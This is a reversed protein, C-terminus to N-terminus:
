QLREMWVKGGKLQALQIKAFEVEDTMGWKMAFLAHYYWYVPYLNNLALARSILQTGKEYEGTHYYIAALSEIASTNLPNKGTITELKHTAQLTDSEKLLLGSEIWMRREAEFLTDRVQGLYSRAKQPQNFALYVESLALHLAADDPKHRLGFGTTAIALSDKYKAYIKGMEIYPPMFSSDQGIVKRFSELAWFYGGVSDAYIGARMLDTQTLLGLDWETQASSEQGYALLLLALEKACLNSLVNEEYKLNSLQRFAAQGEGTIALCQAQHFKGLPFGNNGANEFYLSAPEPLNADMYIVGLLYYAMASLTSDTQALYQLKGISQEISDQRYKLYSELLQLEKLEVKQLAKTAHIAAQVYAERDLAYLAENVLDLSSQPPLEADLDIKEGTYAQFYIANARVSGADGAQLGKMLAKKASVLSDMQLYTLALNGYVASPANYSLAKNLTSLVTDPKKELSSYIYALQNYLRAELPNHRIGEKLLAIVASSDSLFANEAIKLRAPFFEILQTSRLFEDKAQEDKEPLTLYLMALNYHAKTNGPIWISASEYATLATTTDNNMLALDAQSVLRNYAIYKFSKWRDKGEALTWVLLCIIFSVGIHLVPGKGTLYYLNIKEAILTRFNLVLYLIHGIVGGTYFLIILREILRLTVTDGLSTQYGIFALSIIAWCQLIGTFTHITGFMNQVPRFINQSTFITLLSSLFLLHLPRPFSSAESASGTNLVGVLMAIHLLLVMGFGVYVWAPHMRQHPEPKNTTLILIANIMDKATFIMFGASVLLLLPFTNEALAIFSKEGANLYAALCYAALLLNFVLIRWGLSLRLKNMQFMYALALFIAILILPPLYSSGLPGPVIFVGLQSFGIFLVFFGYFFFAWRSRITSALGLLTAWALCQFVTFAFIQISHINLSGPSYNVWQRIIPFYLDYEFFSATVGAVRRLEPFAIPAETFHLSWFFPFLTNFFVSALAAIILISLIWFIRKQAPSFPFYFFHIPVYPLKTPIQASRESYPKGNNM